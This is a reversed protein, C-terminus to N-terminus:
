INPYISLIQFFHRIQLLGDDRISSRDSTHSITYSQHYRSIYRKEFQHKKHRQHQLHAPQPLCAYIDALFLPREQILLFWPESVTTVPAEVIHYPRPGRM